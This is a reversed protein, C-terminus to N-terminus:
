ANGVHVPRAAAMHKDLFSQRVEHFSRANQTGVRFLLQPYLFAYCFGVTAPDRLLQTADDWKPIIAAAPTRAFAVYYLNEHDHGVYLPSFLGSQIFSRRFADTGRYPASTLWRRQGPDDYPAAQVFLYWSTRVHGDTPPPGVSSDRLPGAPIGM